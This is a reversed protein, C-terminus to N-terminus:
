PSVILEGTEWNVQAYFIPQNDDNTYIIDWNNSQAGAYLSVRISCKNDVLIRADAGGNSEALQLAYESPIQINNLNVTTQRTLDPFYEAESWAIIKKKPFFIFDWM